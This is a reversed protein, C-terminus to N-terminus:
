QKKLKIYGKFWLPLIPKKYPNYSIKNGEHLIYFHGMIMWRIWKSRKSNNEYHLTSDKHTLRYHIAFFLCNNM